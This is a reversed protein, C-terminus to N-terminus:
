DNNCVKTTNLLEQNDNVEPLYDDMRRTHNNKSGFLQPEAIRLVYQEMYLSDFAMNGNAHEVKRVDSTRGLDQFRRDAMFCPGFTWSRGGDEVRREKM